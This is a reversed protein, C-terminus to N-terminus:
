RRGLPKEAQRTRYIPIFRLRKMYKLTPKKPRLDKEPVAADSGVDGLRHGSACRHTHNFFSCM